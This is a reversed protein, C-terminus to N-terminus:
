HDVTVSESHDIVATEFKENHDTQVQHGMPLNIALMIVLLPSGCNLM